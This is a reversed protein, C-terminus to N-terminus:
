CLVLYQFPNQWFEPNLVPLLVFSAILLELGNKATFEWSILLFRFPITEQGLCFSVHYYLPSKNEQTSLHYIESSIHCHTQTSSPPIPSILGSLNPQHSPQPVHVHPLMTKKTKNKIYKKSKNVQSVFLACRSPPASPSLLDQLWSRTLTSGTTPSLGWVELDHDSGLGLSRLRGNLQSLWGPARLCCLKSAIEWNWLGQGMKVGHTKIKNLFKISMFISTKNYMM